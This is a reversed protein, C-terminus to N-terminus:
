FKAGNTQYSVEIPTRPLFVLVLQDHKIFSIGDTFFKVRGTKETDKSGAPMKAEGTNSSQKPDIDDIQEM